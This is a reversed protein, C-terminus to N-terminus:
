GAPVPAAISDRKRALRLIPLSFCPRGFRLTPSQNSKVDIAVRPWDRTRVGFSIKRDVNDELRKCM